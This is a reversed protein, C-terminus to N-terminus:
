GWSASILHSSFWKAATTKMGRKTTKTEAPYSFHFTAMLLMTQENTQKWHTPSGSFSEYWIGVSLDPPELRLAGNCGCHIPFLQLHKAGPRKM